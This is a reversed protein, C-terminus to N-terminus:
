FLLIPLTTGVLRIRIRLSKALLTMTVSGSANFLIGNVQAGNTGALYQPNSFPGGISPCTGNGLICYGVNELPADFSTNDWYINGSNNVLNTTLPSLFGNQSDATVASSSSFGFIVDNYDNDTAPSTIGATDEIGGLNVPASLQPTATTCLPASTVTYAFVFPVNPYGYPNSDLLTTPASGYWADVQTMCSDVPVTYTQTSSAALSSSAVDILQQTSLWGSNTPQVFVQYSSLNVPASCQTRNTITVSATSTGVVVGTDTISGNQLDSEFQSASLTCPVPPTQVAISVSSSNNSLNNDTSSVSEGVAATNTITQGATGSAVQAAINLTAASGASLNGITWTGTSSAYSGISATANEFTLGSPLTDTAVVGTSTAPGLASVTLTYNVTQGATPTANDVTKTIAIDASPIVPPVVTAFSDFMAFHQSATDGINLANQSFFTDNGIGNVMYLGFNPTPTFTVSAGVPSSSAFITNLVSPNSPDYWGISDATVSTIKALLTMTVSGSANFTLDNVQAGNPDALYQINPFPAGISPCNGNGLVCYGINELPGDLSINDWYIPSGSENVLNATLPNLSGSDSVATVMSNASFSFIMDNFDGNLEAHGWSAPTDEVGGITVPVGSTNGAAHAMATVGFYAWGGVLLGVAAAIFFKKTTNM